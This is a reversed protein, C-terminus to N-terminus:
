LCCGKWIIRPARVKFTVVMRSLPRHILESYCQVFRVNYCQMVVASGNEKWFFLDIRPHLVLLLLRQVVERVVQLDPLVEGHPDGDQLSVADRGLVGVEEGLELLSKM